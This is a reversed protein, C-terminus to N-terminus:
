RTGELSRFGAALAAAASVRAFPNPLTDTALIEDAGAARLKAAADSIFLGHTCAAVVFAAGQRKLERIATAMTGGTSIMDDLIAVRKGRVDLGKAKIVVETSSLRTKELHDVQAGLAKGAATARGLAGKDPALVTDVGLRRLEEALQPVASDHRAPVGFFDVLVEKHPDVTVVGDCLRGISQAVVKASLAEGELFRRDQRAYAFYPVAAVVRKAGAGRTADLLFMLELLNADPWTSQVVLATGDLRQPIRVYREGDPFTKAEPEVLRAKLLDAAKSALDRSAAGPVVVATV